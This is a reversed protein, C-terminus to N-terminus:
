AAEPRSQTAARASRGEGACEEHAAVRAQELHQGAAALHDYAPCDPSVDNFRLLEGILSATKGMSSLEEEVLEIIQPHM